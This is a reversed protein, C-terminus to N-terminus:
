INRARDRPAREWRGIEREGMEREERGGEWRGMERGEIDRVDEPSADSQHGCYAYPITFSPVLTPEQVEVPGFLRTQRAGVSLIDDTIIFQDDTENRIVVKCICVTMYKTDLHM